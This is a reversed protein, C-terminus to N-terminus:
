GVRERRGFFGQPRVLLVLIMVLLAWMNQLSAPFWLTSLQSVLGIAIAGVMAGYASGLGGLIVAAFMLLLLQFGMDPYVAQTLGFLVGGLGALAGGLLWVIMIIREVNIGSASALDQNDNVARMAKGVRTRELMFAVLGMLAFAILTVILDRPTIRFLGLDMSQQLNYEDYQRRRSGFLVLLIHRVVLALGIAVIFQQILGASKRRMPRWVTLEVGGALLATLIMALIGALWVPLNLPTVSLFFAMIAGFTVYEGHAFNILRTTGFVLSLGVATIAIIAGFKIGEVTLQIFQRAFSTGGAAPPAAAGDEGGAGAALQFIVGQQAGPRVVVGDIQAGDETRPVVGEPLQAPDISASYTGPEPLPVEWQGKDDTTGSGVETGDQTVTITLGSIPQRDPGRISGRISQAAEDQPPATSKAADDQSLVAAPVAATPPSSSHSLAAAAAGPVLMVTLLLAAFLSM